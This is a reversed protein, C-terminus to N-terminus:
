KVIGNKMLFKRVAEYAALTEKRNFDGHGRGRITFLQNPVNLKDLARHLQVSQEYPIIDDKDGHITIIPPSNKRAHNLPSVQRAIDNRNSQSGLWTVAQDFANEGGILDLIDSPGFWNIVAAVKIKKKIPCLRDLEVSNSSMATILALHGGASIGSVIIKSTDINYKQANALVWALSCRCDEVAAPAPSVGALRYEVNVVTWGLELYPLIHLMEAEKSSRTWGGGHIWILTPNQEKSTVPLYLDLKGEWKNATRYSINPVVEYQDPATASWVSPETLQGFSSTSLILLIAISYTTKAYRKVRNMQTTPLISMEETNM